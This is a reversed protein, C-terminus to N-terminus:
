PLIKPRFALKITANTGPLLTEKRQIDNSAHVARAGQAPKLHEAAIAEANRYQSSSEGWVNRINSLNALIQRLDAIM